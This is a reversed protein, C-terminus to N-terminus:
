IKLGANSVGKHLLKQHNLVVIGAWYSEFHRPRLLKIISNQGSFAEYVDLRSIGM